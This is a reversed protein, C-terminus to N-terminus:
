KLLVLKKTEVFSGAKLRYFYTGGALGSANWNIKYEGPSKVEDVLSKIKRGLVDYVILTVHSTNPIDFSITTSPNFPNPYNQSLGFEAPLKNHAKNNVTTVSDPLNYNRNYFIQATDKKNMLDNLDTGMILVYDYYQSTWKKFQFPGSSILMVTNTNQVLTDSGGMMAAWIVENNKPWLGTPGHSNDLPQLTVSNIGVPGPKGPTGLISFGMFGTKWNGPNGIGGPAWAYVLSDSTSYAASNAPQTSNAGGIGPNCYIAFCTKNYDYDSINWVKYKFFIMDQLPVANWQFAREEIRLGLGGRLTDSAIPFYRFPFRTFKKDQSDDVIFFTELSAKMSDKGFYGYWHGNYDSPLNLAAPWQAPWSNKDTSVAPSSSSANSYGPLPELGWHTGTIPDQSDDERYRTELPHIIATDGPATVEAAAMFTLGDMNNHGSGSPWECSPAFNWYGVESYNYYLTRLRNGNLTGQLEYKGNGMNDDRFRQISDPVQATLISSIFFVIILIRYSM